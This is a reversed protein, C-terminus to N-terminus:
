LKQRSKEIKLISVRLEKQGSPRSTSLVIDKWISGPGMILSPQKYLEYISDAEANLKGINELCNIEEPDVLLNSEGEKWGMLKPPGGLSNTCYLRANDVLNCYRPFAKAFSQHSKLQSNVRVARGTMIARRIGRVVALYGDCVVGVIEIRYPKRGRGGDEEEVLEWYNETVTGDQAVKYGVGMRYKCKHVNRAMAITQKVFPEWSLTGDMIVDRGENLATVLLSSAADTSNQHVLEASQLMDHHHGMSKLANYIVDTEKFADAEVVVANSAADAWFSDKLIDKLVTSKGAGMGGGMLLLVPSRENHAMPVMIDTCQSEGKIAKMEEVLTYFMRTVKLNKTVREFRQKRTATLLFEKLRTKKESEISLAQSIISSAKKWHFALYSLTCIEFEQIMKMYLSDGDKEHACYEYILEGCGKSKKLYENALKCLFPVENADEFGMQRAVYDSFKELKAVRGSETRELLPVLNQDIESNEKRRLCRSAATAAVAAAVLGAFSAAFVYALNVKGGVSSDAQMQKATAPKATLISQNKRIKKRKIKEMLVQECPIKAGAKSTTCWWAMIEDELFEQNSINQSQIMCKIGGVNVCLSIRSNKESNLRQPGNISAVYYGTGGLGEEWKGLRLRLFFGDLKSISMHSNIWKLIETRSFRLKKVADFIRKPLDSIQRDVFSCPSTMPNVTLKNEESSSNKNIEIKELATIENSKKKLNLNKEAIPDAGDTIAGVSIHQDEESNLLRANVANGATFQVRSPSCDNVWTDAESGHNGRSTLSPCAIAWHNPQFCKICLCPLEELVMYSNVNKLLDELEDEFIESCDHLRHGRTGCFLCTKNAQTHDDTQNSPIIHKFADLRRALISAMPESNRFGSSPSVPNLLHMPKHDNSSNDNKPGTSIHSEKAEILFRGEASKEGTGRTQNLHDSIELPFTPKPSFRTIWPSNAALKRESITSSDINENNSTNQKGSSSNSSIGEKKKIPELYCCAKDEVSENQSSEHSKVFNIPEIKRQSSPGCDYKWASGEYENSRLYPKYLSNNEAYCTLPTADIGDVKDGLEFDQSGEAPHHNASSIRRGLNKLSSTYISQFISQFGTIKPEVDHDESEIILKQNLWQHGNESHGIALASSNAEPQISQSFGKMLNSIWNIFSSDQKVLSKFGSTEPIQKKARKSEVILQKPFGWRKKGISFMGTSDCSEVSEHSDNGEPLTVNVDGDSLAKNKGKNKKLMHIRSNSPSDSVPFNKDCLLMMENENSKDEHENHKSVQVRNLAGRAAECNATRLDNEATSELIEFPSRSSSALTTGPADAGKCETVPEVKHCWIDDTELAQHGSGVDGGGGCSYFRPLPNQEMSPKPEHSHPSLDDVSRKHGSIASSKDGKIGSIEDSGINAESCINKEMSNIPNENQNILNSAGATDMEDTNGSSGKDLEESAKCEAMVSSDGIPHGTPTDTGAIDGKACIAADPKLVADDQLEEAASMGGFINRTQALVKNSPGVDWFHSPNKAFSSDACKLSLGKDASWVLESLPGSAVFTANELRSTANAGASSDNNLIKQICQSSYNLGLELDTKPDIKESQANMKSLPGLISNVNLDAM